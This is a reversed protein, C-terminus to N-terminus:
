KKPPPGSPASGGSSGGMGFLSQINQAFDQVKQTWSKSKDAETPESVVFYIVLGMTALIIILSLFNPDSFLSAIWMPAFSPFAASIISMTLLVFAALAIISMVANPLSAGVLGLLILLMMIALLLVVMQPLIQNLILIPDQQPQYLRLVHPIIVMLSLTFSLIGAHSQFTTIGTMKKLIIYLLTFILLFPLLAYVFGWNNLMQFVNQLTGSGGYYQYQFLM